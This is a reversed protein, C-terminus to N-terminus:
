TNALCLNKIQTNSSPHLPSRHVGSLGDFHPHIHAPANPLCPRCSPGGFNLIQWSELSVSSTYSGNRSNTSPALCQELYENLGGLWTVLQCRLKWWGWRLLGLNVLWYFRCLWFDPGPVRTGVDTYWVAECFHFLSLLSHIRMKVTRLRLPFSPPSLHIQYLLFSSNDPSDTSEFVLITLIREQANCAHSIYSM